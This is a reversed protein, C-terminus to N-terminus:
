LPNFADSNVTSPGHCVLDMTDTSTALQYISSTTLAAAPSLNVDNYMVQLFAELVIGTPSKVYYWVYVCM